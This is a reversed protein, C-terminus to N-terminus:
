HSHRGCEICRTAFPLAELREPAIAAGCDSCQGYTGSDIRAIALRIQRIEDATASGLRELVEDQESSIANEDWDADPTESLEDDVDSARRLLDHLQNELEARVAAYDNPQTNAPSM